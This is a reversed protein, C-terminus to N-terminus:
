NKYVTELRAIYESLSLGALYTQTNAGMRALDPRHTTSWVLRETLSTANGAAFTFGNEGEQILEAIGEINSAIVPVHCAFSEFIVTPSNEYCLSPVVLADLTQLIDPLHKREVRGYWHIRADAVTQNKLQELQTGNGMIHLEVPTDNTLKQFAEVLLAVGKHTEIQGIYGFRTTVDVSKAAPPLPAFMVPNRVVQITSNKFFGRSTYFDRLFQSPSIVIHPSGILARLLSTYLRTPWGTYRWTKEQLKLIMASPEVLQVDHVTHVHRLQLARIAKPVLFSLGMLNHTHVVDPKEHALIDKVARAASANFIDIVHWVFRALANHHHADTYFFLNRPHIRYITLDSAVVETEAKGPTTTIVVVQHGAARLGAVTKVVVQEAGGRDYPPYINNIIAVKM